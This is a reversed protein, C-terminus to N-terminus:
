IYNLNNVSPEITIELNSSKISKTEFKKKTVAFQVFFNSFQIIIIIELNLQFKRQNEVAFRISHFNSSQNIRDCNWRKIIKGFMRRIPLSYLFVQWKGVILVILGRVYFIGIFWFFKIRITRFIKFRLERGSRVLFFLFLFFASCNEVRACSRDDDEYRSVIMWQITTLANNVAPWPLAPDM